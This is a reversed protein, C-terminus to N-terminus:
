PTPKVGGMVSMLDAGNLLTKGDATLELDYSRIDQGKTNKGQQGIMQLITFTQLFQQAKTKSAPSLAPDDAAQQAYAILKEIGFVELRSKATAGFLAKINATATGNLLVDYEATHGMGTDKVSLTTGANTLLQQLTAMNSMAALSKGEPTTAEQGLAKKGLEALEKFPLNNITLDLNINDPAAKKMGTPPPTISLAKMNITHRLMVKDSRFGYGELGFGVNEVKITSAPTGAKAPSIIELGSVAIDSSFGDWVKTLFDFMTNYMGQANQPNISPKDTSASELMAQMKEQYALAEAVSYDKINSRLDVSRIKIANGTKNFIGQINSAKATMPGSWLKNSGEKLDYIMSLEPITIKANETMDTYTINKYQGNLRVFNRFAEHFVGAFNQNGIELVGTEKGDPGFMTIPTPLAVTMKWEEKKDGPLANISIM